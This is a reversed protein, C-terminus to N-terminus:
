KKKDFYDKVENFTTYFATIVDNRFHGLDLSTLFIAYEMRTLDRKTNRDKNIRDRVTELKDKVKPNEAVKEAIYKDIATKSSLKEYNEMTRQLSFGKRFMHPSAKKEVEVITHKGKKNKIRVDEKRTLHQGADSVVKNIEKRLEKVSLFTGDSRKPNFIRETLKKGATLEELYKATDDSIKLTRTLGGKDKVYTITKANLDIDCPRLRLIASIRGGTELSIRSAHYAAKRTETNYGKKKINEIVSWCEDPTARLVTSAKSHRFVNQEKMTERIDEPNGLAFKKKHNFVNTKEVGLNFAKLAATMTKLNYAQSTDGDHYKDIRKHVLDNIHSEKVKRVNSIGFEKNVERMLSKVMDKYTDITRDSVRGGDVSISQMRMKEFVKDIKELSNDLKNSM